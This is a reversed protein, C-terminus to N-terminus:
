EVDDKDKKIKFNGTLLKWNTKIYWFDVAFGLLILIIGFLIGFVSGCCKFLEIIALIGLPMVAIGGFIGVISDIETHVQQARRANEIRNLNSALIYTEEISLHKKSLDKYEKM